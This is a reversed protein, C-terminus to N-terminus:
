APVRVGAAELRECLIPHIPITAIFDPLPGEIAGDELRMDFTRIIVLEFRLWALIEYYGMEGVARGILDEYRGITEERDFFGDLRPVGRGVTWFYDMMLWWGLDIEAPGLSANEWDLVAAVSLDDAFIMNRPNCDGWLVSVPGEPPQNDRLYALTAGVVPFHHDKVAWRAWEEVFTLYRDLGPTAAGAPHLFTFGDRWDLRNIRAQMELANTAVRTRDPPVLEFVWGAAHYSPADPPVRGPVKTMVFFPSDFLADDHEECLVEPVPVDRHWAMAAMMRSQHFVDMDYFVQFNDAQIRGVMGQTRRRGDEIWTADFVVTLNSAGSRPLELSVIDLDEGQPIRAAIWTRFGDRLDDLTFTQRQQAMACVTRM